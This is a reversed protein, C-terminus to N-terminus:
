KKYLAEVTDAAAFAYSAVLCDKETKKVNTVFGKKIWNVSEPLNDVDSATYEVKPYQEKALFANMDSYDIKPLLQDFDDETMDSFENLGM